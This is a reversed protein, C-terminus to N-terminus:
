RGELRRMGCIDACDLRKDTVCQLCMYREIRRVSRQVATIERTAEGAKQQASAVSVQLMALWGGGGFAIGIATVVVALRIRKPLQVFGGSPDRPKLDDSM